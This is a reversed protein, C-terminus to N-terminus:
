TAFPIANPRTLSVQCRSYPLPTGQGGVRGPPLEHRPEPGVVKGFEEDIECTDTRFGQSFPLLPRHGKSDWLTDTRKLECSSQETDFGFCNGSVLRAPPAAM